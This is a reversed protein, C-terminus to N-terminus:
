KSMSFTSKFKESIEDLIGKYPYFINFPNDNIALYYGDLYLCLAWVSIVSFNIMGSYVKM